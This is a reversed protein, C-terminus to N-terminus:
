AGNKAELEEWRALLTLLSDEIEASRSNLRAAQTHDAYVAPDTLQRAVEAQEDELAAIQQPLAELEKQEKYSLGSKRAKTPTATAPTTKTAPRSVPKEATLATASAEAAV